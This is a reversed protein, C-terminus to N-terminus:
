YLYLKPGEDWSLLALLVELALVLVGEWNDVKEWESVGLDESLSTEWVDWDDDAGSPKGLESLLLDDGGTTDNLQDCLRNDGLCDFLHLTTAEAYANLTRDFSILARIGVYRSVLIIVKHGIHNTHWCFCSSSSRLVPHGIFLIIPTSTGLWEPKM